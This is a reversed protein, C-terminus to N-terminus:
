AGAAQEQPLPRPLRCSPLRGTKWYYNQHYDEAPWFDGAATVRTAVRYGKAGLEAVLREAALKQGEDLFFIESRYQSGIDPGQRDVQTFDHTEFFLRALEEFSVQAPDYVVRVAEAHGTDGGCVQEYTPRPVHGGTFGAATTLVGRRAQLVHQTGWFCGSAFIATATGRGDAPIFNMSLSNVCHRINRSTFGEGFFVHGLHAGCAACAIESRLGDADPRSSVAGAIEQDFSPWGCGSDFKSASRYLPAGCRKCVYTGRGKFDHYLGTFPLETGKHVIVGEEAPTLKQDTMRVESGALV